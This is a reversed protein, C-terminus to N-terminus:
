LEVAERRMLRLSGLSITFILVFVVVGIATAYGFDSESFAKQYLYTLLTHTHETPNSDTMVYVLGFINITNIILYVIALKLIDWVLPITIGIFQQWSGAGDISAAEYYSNPISQIGALLLVIYFGLGYWISTVIMCILATNPEGLWGNQPPKIGMGQVVLNLIGFQPHYVFSWLVAVAVVSIMNPFLFVARYTGSGWVKRSLVSGFFLALPIVVVLSILMFEFNHLLAKWFLPDRPVMQGGSSEFGLLKQFNALGVFQRNQSIGSWKFMAIYFAQVMPFLFFVTYLVVAPTLFLILTKFKDRNAVSSM